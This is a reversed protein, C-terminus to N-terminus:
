DQKKRGRTSFLSGLISQQPKRGKSKSNKPRTILKAHAKRKAIIRKHESSQFARRQGQTMGKKFKVNIRGSLEADKVAGSDTQKKSKGAAELAATKGRGAISNNRAPGHRSTPPKKKEKKSELHEFLKVIKDTDEKTRKSGYGRRFIAM